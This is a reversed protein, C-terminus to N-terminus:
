QGIPKEVPVDGNTGWQTTIFTTPASSPIIYWTGSSPRWIASDTKGDGDFDGPVPIDGNEGWQQIIPVSPNSSPIIFWTGTPPRFVAFDTKGDGDYDGEVPIDGSEGWQQIIPVSPNGSPIIFWTGSSPRFVAFDAKANGDYNGPVPIDGAEGWQQIIPTTPNSSPIIFWTGNSPRWVAIDSRGYGEFDGTTHTFFHIPMPFNPNTAPWGSIAGSLYSDRYNNIAFGGFTQSVASFQSVVSRAVSNMATQGLSYFTEEATGGHTAPNDTDLGILVTNAQSVSNAYAVVAEDLCVVGDGATCDSTGAYNRYGMVVINTLRLNVIQEYAPATVQGYTVTDTWFASIAVSLGMGNTQAQQQFCQYLEFLEIYDPSSGPEVDLIVGDLRASPNAANYAIVEAMRKMPFASSSCGLTPWDTDGYAAYVLIGQTHASQILSAIDSDAYMYRGASNPASSYISVYLINAGSASSDQVLAARTPADTVPNPLSSVSYVWVANVKAPVAASQAPGMSLTEPTPSVELVPPSPAHMVDLFDKQPEDYGSRGAIAISPATAKKTLTSNSQAAIPSSTACAVLAGVLLFNLTNEAPMQERRKLSGLLFGYVFLYKIPKSIKSM